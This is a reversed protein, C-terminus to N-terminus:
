ASRQSDAVPVTFAFTSGQNLESEFTISGGQMEVLRNILWLGLGHGPAIDRANDFRTFQGKFLREQDEKSIGIGTDEVACRVFQGTKGDDSLPLEVVQASIHIYGELTYKRANSVLNDLVQVLRTRDGWVLPLDDPITLRLELGKEEIKRRESDLTESIVDTIAVPEMELKLRGREIRSIDLLDDVTKRMREANAVITRIFKRKTEDLSDDSMELLRAYGGINTLPNKLEHAVMSVFQSKTENARKVEEYLKANEIPVVAREALRTAFQVDDERFGSVEPSELNIVGIVQDGLRLPVAMQSRTEPVTIVYDPDTTVDDVVITQGLRVARGIVGVSVLWPKERYRDFEPPYGRSAVVFLGGREEDLTCIAGVEAGTMQMAWDLTLEIVHQLDLTANLARDIRQFMSLEAVRDALAQDTQTFLRANEIAVAAQSAFAMLLQQDQKDFPSGDKKNLVELVGISVGKSILPVAILARTIYGSREDTKSSWRKDRQADNVIIPQQSEAAAGVIGTGPALRMGILDSASPGVAVQFVLEGTELDTLFLTGSEADLVEAAKQTIIDLVTDFDLSSNIVAGVENLIALQRAREEMEADLRAKVIIAAAQDAIASFLQLQHASYSVGPDSSSINMVGIVQDGTNLPVGMWARGAKAGPPIGRRACEAMYDDAVIPQGHRIIESHLGGMELPWEDDPFYREGEEVYFAYSLTGKAEDYLAIYFNSCELVRSTQAYILELLDDLGVTFNIAQSIWRLANLEAVRRELKSILQVRDLALATQEGLAELYELDDSSYPMGSRKAGLAMWGHQPLPVLLVAGLAQVQAAERALVPPMPEMGLYISQGQQVVLQAVGGDPAFRVGKTPGGTDSAPVFQSATEDYVYFLLREPHVASEVRQMLARFIDGQSVLRGVDHIYAELEQRYDLRDRYFLRDVAQQTGLRLPNFVLMMVFVFLGVVLPNNAAITTGLVLGMLNVFLWYGGIVVLTLLSYSVSRSILRDVDMLRYRLIAYAISLPLFILPTFLFDPYFPLSVKFTALLFWTAIPLASLMLGLLVVRSQQKISPTTARIRRRVLMALWLLVGVVTTLFLPRWALIYRWPHAMDFTAWMAGAGLVVAPLYIWRPLWPWRLALSSRKPFVLALDVMSSGVTALGVVWLAILHHTTYLDLMTAAVIASSACFIPFARGVARARRAVFVAGGIILYVLGIGYPVVFVSILVSAPLSQLTVQVERRGGEPREVTLTVRDGVRYRGLVEYLSWPHTLRQGDLAVLRDPLNLGAARGTWRSEGVANVVLTPEVFVGLFPRHTVRVALVLAAVYVLVAVALLLAVAAQAARDRWTPIDTLRPEDAM